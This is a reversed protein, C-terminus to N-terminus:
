FQFAIVTTITFILLSIALPRDELFVLEPNSGKGKRIVLYLYRFLGYMVLPITVPLYQHHRASPSMIAYLAYTIICSSACISIFQDLLSIDYASLTVRHSTAIEGLEIIESRRKCFGLLASGMMAFSLLWGTTAVDAAVAGAYTRLVFGSAILLVDLIVVHKAGFTYISSTALYTFEVALFNWGITIGLAIAMVLCFIALLIALTTKLEGSAIPRLSKVPHLRDLEIDKIDNLIYVSSSLLCFSFVAICVDLLRSTDTLRGAFLLAVFLLLNKSWQKCRLARIVPVCM